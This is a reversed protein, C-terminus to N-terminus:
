GIKKDAPHELPYCLGCSCKIMKKKLNIQESRGCVAQDCYNCREFQKTWGLIQVEGTSYNPERVQGKHDTRKRPGTKQKHKTTTYNGRVPPETDIYWEKAHINIKKYFHDREM